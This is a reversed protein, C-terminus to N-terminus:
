VCINFPRVSRRIAIAFALFLNFIRYGGRIFGSVEERWELGSLTVLGSITVVAFVSFRFCCYSAKKSRQGNVCTMRSLAVVTELVYYPEKLSSFYRTKNLVADTGRLLSKDDRNHFGMM